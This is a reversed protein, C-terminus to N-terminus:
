RRTGFAGIIGSREFVGGVEEHDPGYFTGVLTRGSSFRGDAGITVGAWEIDPFSTGRGLSLINTFAVVAESTAFDVSVRADGRVTDLTRQEAGLMAGDWVAAGQVPRSGSADGISVAGVLGGIYDGAADYFYAHDVSFANRDMWGGFSRSSLSGAETRASSTGRSLSVGRHIGYIEYSDDAEFDSLLVPVDEVQSPMAGTCTAGRCRADISGFGVVPPPGGAGVWHFDTVLLTDARAHIAELQATVTRTDGTPAPDASVTPGSGGGGGCAALFLLAVGAAVAPITRTTM